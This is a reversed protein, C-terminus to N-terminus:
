RNGLPTKTPLVVAEMVRSATLNWDHNGPADKKQPHTDRRPYLLPPNELCASPRGEIGVETDVM